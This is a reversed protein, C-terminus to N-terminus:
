HAQTRSDQSPREALLRTLAARLQEPSMADVDARTPSSPQKKQDGLCSNVLGAFARSDQRTLNPVFRSYVRFLMETSAHGLAAAVWEPNEGSALMLTAATHRMQYPRRKKLDLYRLLPYWVRNTFNVADIPNDRATHFVWPCEPLAARKQEELALRVAPVIQITRRSGDTKLDGDGERSITREIRLTNHEWDVDIWQLGNAEGTRLGTM